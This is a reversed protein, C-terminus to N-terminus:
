SILGIIERFRVNYDEINRKPSKFGSREFSKLSDDIWSHVLDLDEDTIEDPTLNMYNEKLNSIAESVEDSVQLPNESLEMWTMNSRILSLTKKVTKRERLDSGKIYKKNTKLAQGYYQQRLTERNFEPLNCFLGIEDPVYVIPSELWEKLSANSKFHLYLAKKIDWGMMDLFGDDELIVDDFSDLVLYRSIDNHRYIFKIDYDSDKNAYGNTRSGSEAAYLVTINKRVELDHLKELIQEKM